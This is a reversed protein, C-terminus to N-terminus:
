DKRCLNPYLRELLAANEVKLEDVEQRKKVAVAEADKMQRKLARIEAAQADVTAQQEDPDPWDPSAARKARKNKSPSDSARPDPGFLLAPKRKKTPTDLLHSYDEWGDSPDSKEAEADDEDDEEDSSILRRSKNKKSKAPSKYPVLAGEDNDADPLKGGKEEVEDAWLFFGGKDAPNDCCYFERGFNVTEKRTVKLVAELRPDRDCFCLIQGPSAFCGFGIYKNTGRPLRKPTKITKPSSSAARRTNSGM